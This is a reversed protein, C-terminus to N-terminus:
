TFAIVCIGIVFGSSLSFFKSLVYLTLALCLVAKLHHPYARSFILPESRFNLFHLTDYALRTFLSIFVM